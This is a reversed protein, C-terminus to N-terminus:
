ELGAREERRRQAEMARYVIAPWDNELAQLSYGAERGARLMGESVDIELGLAAELAKRTTARLTHLVISDPKLDKPTHWFAKLARDVMADDIVPKTM